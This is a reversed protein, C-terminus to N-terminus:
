LKSLKFAFILTLFAPSQLGHVSRHKVFHVGAGGAHARMVLSVLAPQGLLRCVSHLGAPSLGFHNEPADANGKGHIAFLVFVAGTGFAQNGKVQNGADDGSVFPSAHFFTQHLADRREVAEDMVDVVPLVDDLGAHHGGLLNKLVGLEAGLHHTDIHRAVNVRVDAANVDHASGVGLSLALVVHEFVIQAHGAAHAVHEFVALHHHAQEGLEEALVAHRRDSMVGVQQEFGQALHRRGGRGFGRHHYERRAHVVRSVKFVGEQRLLHANLQNFAM